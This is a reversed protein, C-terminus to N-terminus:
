RSSRLLRSVEPPLSLKESEFEGLRYSVHLVVRDDPSDPIKERGKWLTAGKRGNFAGTSYISDIRVPLGTKRAVHVDYAVETMGSRLGSVKVAGSCCQKFRLAEHVYVASAAKAPVEVRVVRVAPPENSVVRHNASAPSTEVTSEEKAGARGYLTEYEKPTLWRVNKARKGTKVINTLANLPFEFLRNMQLADYMERETAFGSSLRAWKGRRKVLAVGSPTRYVDMSSVYMVPRGTKPASGRRAEFQLKTTEEEIRGIAESRPALGARFVADIQYNKSAALKKLATGLVERPSPEEASSASLEGIALFVCPLLRLSLCNLRM